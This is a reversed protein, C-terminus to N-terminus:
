SRSGGRGPLPQRTRLALPGSDVVPREGPPDATQERQPRVRQGCALVVAIGGLIAGVLVTTAVGFGTVVLGGVFAGVTIGVNVAASLTAAAVDSRGPAVQLVLGGLAATFAAFAMGSVAIMGVAVMPQRGFAYLVLLGVTQLAVTVVLALWPNRDVFAAMALIALVSAMGRALLIAGVSTTAFGTVETVFLAVYTYAAIAGATTLVAIVVLLGFRRADPTAGHTAHGEGPRTSPLLVAVVALVVAGLGAVTLFSARWGAKEGLWAGTPVGVLLAVNGGAFVVAVVRGRLGPRFLEAAAAVDTTQRM